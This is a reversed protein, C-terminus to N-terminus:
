AINENLEKKQQNIYFDIEQIKKDIEQIHYNEIIVTIQDMQKSVDEKISDKLRGFNKKTIESLEPKYGTLRYPFNYNIKVLDELFERKQRNDAGFYKTKFIDLLEDDFTELCTIETYIFSGVPNNLYNIFLRRKEWVFLSESIYQIKQLVPKVKNSANKIDQTPVHFREPDDKFTGSKIEAIQKDLGTEIKKIDFDFDFKIGLQEYVSINILLRCVQDYPLVGEYAEKLADLLGKKTTEYDLDYIPWFLVKAKDTVIKPNFKKDIEKKLEEEQWVGDVIWKQLTELMLHNYAGSTFYKKLTESQIYKYEGYSGKTYNSARYEYEMICFCYLCDKLYKEVGGIEKWVYFVREFDILISKLSRLNNYKSEYFTQILISTNEKLFKVYKESADKERQKYHNILINIIAKFDTDLKITREIVKEKFEKYEECNNNEEEGTKQSGVKDNESKEKIANKGTIKSEDAIIITKIRANECYNNIAGLLDMRDIKCREFDDFVLVFEKKNRKDEKNKVNVFDLLNYSPLALVGEAVGELASSAPNVTSAVIVGTKVVDILTKSIKKLVGTMKNIYQKRVQLNLENVSDVGFLSIISVTYDKGNNLDAIVEKVAYSKGCGWDGSILLAGYFDSEHLYDLIENKIDM